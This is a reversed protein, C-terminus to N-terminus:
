VDGKRDIDRFGSTGLILQTDWVPEDSRYVLGKNYLDMFSMQATKRCHENITSYKLNWDVSLRTKGRTKYGWGQQEEM